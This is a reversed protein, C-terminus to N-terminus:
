FHVHKGIECRLRMTTLLVVDCAAQTLSVFLVVHYISNFNFCVFLYCSQCTTGAPHLDHATCAFDCRLAKYDPRQTESATFCRVNLLLLSFILVFCCNPALQLATKASFIYM